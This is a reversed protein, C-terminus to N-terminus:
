QNRGTSEPCTLSRAVRLGVVNTFTPEILLWRPFADRETTYVTVDVLVESYPPLITDNSLKVLWINHEATSDSTHVGGDRRGRECCSEVDDKLNLLMKNFDIRAGYKRLFDAGLIGSYPINLACVHFKHPYNDENIRVELTQSGTIPLSSGTVGKAELQSTETLSNSIGQKVLSIEAGTDVLFM